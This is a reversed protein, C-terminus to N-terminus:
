TFRDLKKSYDGHMPSVQLQQGLRLLTLHHLYLRGGHLHVTVGQEGEGRRLHPHKLRRRAQVRGSYQCPRISAM